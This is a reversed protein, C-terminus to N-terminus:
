DNSEEDQKRKPLPPFKIADCPKCRGKKDKTNRITRGYDHLYTLEEVIRGCEECKM